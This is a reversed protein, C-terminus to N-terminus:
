FSWKQYDSFYRDHMRNAYDVLAPLSSILKTSAPCAEQALISALFGYLTIDVETPGSGGLVWFPEKSGEVDSHSRSETLIDNFTHWIERRFQDVEESTLRGTGQGYLTTTVKGYVKHGVYIRIPWPVAWLAQERQTYYNDVWVERMHYFYLKDELLSRLALDQAKESTSLSANLDRLDGDNILHQFILTSDGLIQKQDATQAQVELYPIKKKPGQWPAGADLTYDVNALRLRTEVKTVFPSSVYKDKDTSGRFLKLRPSREVEKTAAM